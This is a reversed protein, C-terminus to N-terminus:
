WAVKYGFVAELCSQCLGTTEFERIFVKNRFEEKDVRLACLPCRCEKVATVAAVKYGFKLTKKVVVKHGSKLTKLFKKKVIKMNIM